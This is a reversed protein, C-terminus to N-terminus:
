NETALFEVLSRLERRTLADGMGEPMGSLGKDRKTITAKDLKLLGDEPSLIVLEKDTESKFQGAYSIGNKLTEILNEFGQAITAN